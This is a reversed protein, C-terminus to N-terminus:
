GIRVRWQSTRRNSRASLPNSCRGASGCWFSFRAPRTGAKRWLAVNRAIRRALRISPSEESTTDFPLDWGELEPREGAPTPEWIEVLGPPTAPLWQHVTKVPDASLGRYAQERGFVTDM